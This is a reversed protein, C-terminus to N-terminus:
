AVRGECGFVSRYVDRAHGGWFRAATAPVTFITQLLDLNSVRTAYERSNPLSMWRSPWEVAFHVLFERCLVEDINFNEAGLGAVVGDLAHLSKRFMLLDAAMRLRAHQVADDLLGMLWNMGPFQGRRLRALWAAVVVRLAPGDLRREDAIQGIVTVIREANLTVAGLLLQVIAVREEQNLTGVLSWDLIALRGESTLFLNGAHPDAHFVAKSARTFIPQAILSEVALEALKRRERNHRLAHDTIKCGYIRQM